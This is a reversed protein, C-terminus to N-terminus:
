CKVTKKSRFHPGLLIWWILHVRLDIPRQYGRGKEQLVAPMGVLSGGTAFM